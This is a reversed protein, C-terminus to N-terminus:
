SAHNVKEGAEAEARLKSFPGRKVNRRVPIQLKAELAEIRELQENMDDRLRDFPERWEGANQNAHGLLRAFEEMGGNIKDCWKRWAKLEVAMADLRFSLSRGQDRLNAQLVLLGILAVLSIALAVVALM